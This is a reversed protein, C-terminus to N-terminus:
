EIGEALTELPCPLTSPKGAAKLFRQRNLEHYEMLRSMVEEKDKAGRYAQYIQEITTLFLEAIAARVLTSASIDLGIIKKSYSTILDFMAKSSQDLSITTKFVPDKSQLQKPNIRKTM